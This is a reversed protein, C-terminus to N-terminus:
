FKKEFTKEHPLVAEKIISFFGVMVGAPFKKAGFDSFGNM